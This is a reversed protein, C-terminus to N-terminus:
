YVENYSLINIDNQQLLDFRFKDIQELRFTDEMGVLLPPSCDIDFVDCAIQGIAFWGGPSALSYIGLYPGGLALTNKPIRTSPTEKRPVHYQKPLGDLYLFGPLFGFMSLNFEISLLEDIIEAKSQETYKKVADWDEHDNFYIPIMLRKGQISKSLSIQELARLDCVKYQDNLQLCIESPTAIVEDIFGFNREYIAQGIEINKKSKKGKLLIFDNAFDFIEFSFEDIKIFRSM